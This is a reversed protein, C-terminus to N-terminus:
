GWSMVRGPELYKNCYMKARVYNHNVVRVLAIGHEISISQQSAHIWHFDEVYLKNVSAIDHLSISCQQQKEKHM